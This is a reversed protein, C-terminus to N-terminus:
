IFLAILWKIFAALKELLASWDPAGFSGYNKGRFLIGGRDVDAKLEKDAAARLDAIAKRRAPGNPRKDFWKKFRVESPVTTQNLHKMLNIEFDSAAM